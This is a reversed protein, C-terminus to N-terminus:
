VCGGCGELCGPQANNTVPGPPTSGSCTAGGRLFCTNGHGGSADAHCVKCENACGDGLPKSLEWRGGFANTQNDAATLTTGWIGCWSGSYDYADCRGAGLKACMASCNALSIQGRSGPNIRSDWFLYQSGTGNADRCGGRAAVYGSLAGPHPVPPPPGPPPPAPPLSGQAALLKHLLAGTADVRLAYDEFSRAGTPNWVREAMAPARSSLMCLHDTASMQWVCMQAGIVADAYQKPIQWWRPPADETM